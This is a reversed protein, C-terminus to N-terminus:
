AWKKQAKKPIDEKKVEEWSTVGKKDNYYVRLFADKRLNKDATFEMMKEKGDKDFAPLEYKFSKFKKGNDAVVEQETGDVTIQIYYQSKGMRNFNCGALISTFIILVSFLAIFRKM